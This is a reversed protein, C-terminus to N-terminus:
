PRRPSSVSIASPSLSFFSVSRPLPESSFLAPAFSLLSLSLSIASTRSVAHAGIRCARLYTYLRASSRAVSAETEERLQLSGRPTDPRAYASSAPVRPIDENFYRPEDNICLLFVFLHVLGRPSVSRPM